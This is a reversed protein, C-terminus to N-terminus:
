ELSTGGWLVAYKECHILLSKHSKWDFDSPLEYEQAGKTQKLLALFFAQNMANNGNLDAFKQPSFVIKLDPGSQTKFSEDLILVQLRGRQVIQVKGQLSKSKKTLSGEWLITDSAGLLITNSSILVLILLIRITM